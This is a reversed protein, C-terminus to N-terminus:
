AFFSAAVRLSRLDIYIWLSTFLSPNSSGAADLGTEFSIRGSVFLSNRVQFHHYSELNPIELSSGPPFGWKEPSFSHTKEPPFDELAGYIM